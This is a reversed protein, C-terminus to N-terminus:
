SWDDNEEENIFVIRVSVVQDNDDTRYECNYGGDGFGSSSVCGFPIVGAGLRSLTKDACMDYWGSRGTLPSSKSQWKYDRADAENQYHELDFIGAQGSDVGVEFNARKWAGVPRSDTAHAELACCRAGWSNMDAKHVRAAWRGKKPNELRGCCWVDLDYCPDTINLADSVVEFEGLSIIEMVNKM